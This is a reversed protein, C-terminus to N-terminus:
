FHLHPVVIDTLYSVANIKVLRRCVIIQHYGESDAYAWVM